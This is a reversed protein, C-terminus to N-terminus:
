AIMKPGYCSEKRGDDAREKSWTLENMLADDARSKPGDDARSRLSDDTRKKM